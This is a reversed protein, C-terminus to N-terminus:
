PMLSLTMGVNVLVHVFWSATLGFAVLRQVCRELPVRDPHHAPLPRPVVHARDDRRHVRAGRRHRRPHLGHAARCTDSANRHDTRSDRASGDAPASRPRRSSYTIRRAARTRRRISSPSCRKQQYPSLRNWLTPALIGMVVNAVVARCRRDRVAPLLFDARDAPHVVWGLSERQRRAPPQHRPQRRAAAVAVVCRGSCCPSSSALSRSAPASIRNSCSLVWPILVMVAPQWLELLSKPAERRSALTRALM